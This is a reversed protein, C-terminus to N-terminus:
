FICGLIYHDLWFSYAIFTIIIQSLIISDFLM